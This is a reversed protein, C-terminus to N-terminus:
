FKQCILIMLILSHDNIRGLRLDISYQSVGRFNIFGLKRRGPDRGGAEFTFFSRYIFRYSKKWFGLNIQWFRRYFKMLGFAWCFFEMFAWCEMFSIFGWIGFCWISIAIFCHSRNWIKIFRWCIIFFVFRWMKSSNLIM